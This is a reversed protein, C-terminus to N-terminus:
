VPLIINVRLGGLPSDVLELSGGHSLAVDKAITLGLGVGSGSGPTRAEDLKRFAQLAEEKKSDHIGPGNDDVHIIVNDEDLEYSIAVDHAFRLANDIINHLCRRMAQERLPMVIHDNASLKIKKGSRLYGSVVDELLANIDSNRAQEGGEGRAFELYERIMNEMEQIDQNLDAADKEDLMALQLKMRTLPTRLDHSIAALMQTRRTILRKIRESMVLFAQGARRIELAGRPRFQLIEQGKGFAESAQALQQIPRVQNRLFLISIIVLLLAAGHTWLLFIYTTASAVRKEPARISLVGDRMAINIEIMDEGYPSVSFPYSIRNELQSSLEPYYSNNNNAIRVPSLWQADLEFYKSAMHLSPIRTSPNEMRETVYAIENALSIAMYKHITHWHREYFVYSAVLQVLITPLAIMLLARGFFSRPMFRKLLFFPRIM